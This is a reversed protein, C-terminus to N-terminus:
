RWAWRAILISLGRIKRPEDVPCAPSTDVRARPRPSTASTSGQVVLKLGPVFVSSRRSSSVRSTSKAAKTKARSSQVLAPAGADASAPDPWAEGRSLTTKSAPRNPPTSPMRRVKM